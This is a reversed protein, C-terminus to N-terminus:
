AAAEGSRSDSDGRRPTAQEVARSVSAWRFPTALQGLYSTPFAADGDFGVDGPQHVTERPLHRTGFVIDWFIINAGYNNNAHGIDRSHHWRHLEAMSFIWNLPGLRLDINAHQFIGHAATFTTMLALVEHSCGLLMLPGITAVHSFVTDLPHFRGANFWWMRPASHHTVHFRWLADHEHAMRHWWYQGFEGVIAALVVQLAMPLRSPWLEYGLSDSLAIAVAGVTLAMVAEVLPPPLLQSFIMHKFDTAVDGHSKSWRLAHPQVKEGLIVFFVAFLTGASSAAVPGWGRQLGLYSILLAGFFALPFITCAFIRRATSSTALHTLDGSNDTRTASVVTGICPFM